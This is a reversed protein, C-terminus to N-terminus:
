LVAARVPQHPICGELNTLFFCSVVPPTSSVSFFNSQLRAGAFLIRPSVRPAAAAWAWAIAWSKTPKQEDIWAVGSRKWGMWRTRPVITPLLPWSSEFSWSKKPQALVRRVRRAILVYGCFVSSLWDVLMWKPLRHEMWEPPKNINWLSIPIPFPTYPLCNSIM